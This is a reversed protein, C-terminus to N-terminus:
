GQSYEKRAEKLMRTAAMKSVVVIDELPLYAHISQDFLVKISPPFEEEGEWLIFTVPVRPFAYLTFSANGYEEAKGGLAKGAASFADRSYGFARLLPAVVRREFAPLYVRCGPIDEYPKLGAGVRAGSAQILYHMIVIKATLTINSGKSSKFVFGPAALEINEDFFPISLHAVGEKRVFGVGAKAAREELPLEGLRSCALEFTKRYAKQRV